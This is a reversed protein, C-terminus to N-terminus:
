FDKYIKINEFNQSIAKKLNRFDWHNFLRYKIFNNNIIKLYDNKIISTEKSVLIDVYYPEIYYKKNYNKDIFIYILKNHNEDLFVDFITLQLEKIIEENLEKLYMSTLDINKHKKIEKKQYQNIINKIKEKKDKLEKTDIKKAKKFKIREGLIIKLKLDTLYDIFQRKEKIAQQEIEKIKNLEQFYNFYISKLQYKSIKNEFCLYNMFKLFEISNEEINKNYLSNFQNLYIIFRPYNWFWEFLYIILKKIEKENEIFVDPIQSKGSTIYNILDNLKITPKSIKM